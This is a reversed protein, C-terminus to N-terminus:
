NWSALMSELHNQFATEISRSIADSLDDYHLTKNSRDSITKEKLNYTRCKEDRSFQNNASTEHPLFHSKLDAGIVQVYASETSDHRFYHMGKEGAFMPFSAVGSVKLAIGLLRPLPKPKQNQLEENAPEVADGNLRPSEWDTREGRYVAGVILKQAMEADDRIDTFDFSNFISGFM